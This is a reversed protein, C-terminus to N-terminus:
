QSDFVLEHKQPSNIKSNEKEQNQEKQLQILDIIQQNEEFMKNAEEDWEALNKDMEQNSEISFKANM